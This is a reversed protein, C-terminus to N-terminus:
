IFFISSDSHSCASMTKAGTSDAVEAEFDDPLAFSLQSNGHWEIMKDDWEGTKAALLRQESLM